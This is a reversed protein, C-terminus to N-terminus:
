ALAKDQRIGEAGFLLKERGTALTMGNRIKLLRPEEKWRDKEDKSLVWVTHAQFIAESSRGPSPPRGSVGQPQEIM